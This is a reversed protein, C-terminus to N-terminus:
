CWSAWLNVLVWRGRFEAISTEGEAELRPLSRDPVMDGVEIKAGGKSLLGFGLLGVVALVACFAFFSRASM